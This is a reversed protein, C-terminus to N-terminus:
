LSNQWERFEGDIEKLIYEPINNFPIFNLHHQLLINKVIRLYAITKVFELEFVNDKQVGFLRKGECFVSIAENYQGNNKLIAGIEMVLFPAVESSPYLILAQRFVSLAQSFNRQEKYVFALDLLSDLDNSTSGCSNIPLQPEHNKVDLELVQDDIQEFKNILDLEKTDNQINYNIMIEYNDESVAVQEQIALEFADEIKDIEITAISSSLKENFSVNADMSDFHNHNQTIVGDGDELVTSKNQEEPVSVNYMKEVANVEAITETASLGLADAIIIEPKEWPLGEEFSESEKEQYIFKLTEERKALCNIGQQGTCAQVALSTQTLANSPDNQKSFKDNYYTISYAFIIIFIALIGVTEMVGVFGIIIRPLVINILLACCLCLILPKIKIHMNLRNALLFVLLASIIMALLTIIIYQM